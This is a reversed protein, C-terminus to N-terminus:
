MNVSYARAVLRPTPTEDSPKGQSGRKNQSRGLWNTLFAPMGRATKRKQPNDICWQRALRLEAMLDLHPFSVRYQDIKVQGIGWEKEPGDCPFVLVPPVSSAPKQTEPCATSREKPKPNSDPNPNSEPACIINMQPADAACPDPFRRKKVRITQRFDLIELYKNSEVEYVRVLGSKVCEAIWRSVDSDRVIDLLTPYCRARVVSLRGDFCGYDDCVQHLRRYFAEASWGGERVLAEMRRSDLIGERVVRNPM